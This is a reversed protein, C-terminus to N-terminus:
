YNITIDECILHSVTFARSKTKCAAGPNGWCLEPIINSENMKAAIVATDIRITVIPMKYTKSLSPLNRSAM